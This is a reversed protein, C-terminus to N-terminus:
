LQELIQRALTQPHNNHTQMHLKIQPQKDAISKAYRKDYYKLIIRAAEKANGQNIHKRAEESETSGLKKQINDTAALLYSKPLSSYSEVLNQIRTELSVDLFVCPSTNKQRYLEPVLNVRGIKLSEDEVWIRRNLDLTKFTEYLLNQFHEATPQESNQQQGFASGQHKALGEFDVVQEGLAKLEHLVETKRSGTYGTLVMLPLPQHFFELAM